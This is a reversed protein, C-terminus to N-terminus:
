GPCGAGPPSVPCQGLRLHSIVAGLPSVLVIKERAFWVGLGPRLVGPVGQGLRRHRVVAGRSSVCLVAVTGVM